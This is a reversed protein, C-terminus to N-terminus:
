LVGANRLAYELVQQQPDFPKIRDLGLYNIGSELYSQGAGKNLLAQAEAAAIGSAFLGAELICAEPILGVVESGLVDIGVEGALQRIAEWVALPSTQQYDTFNMSIQATGFDEVYWGIARLADFKGKIRRGNERYGSSRLQKALRRAIESSETNLSVNYAILIKRAGIVTAGTKLISERSTSNWKPGYDPQWRSSQMKHPLSEYNGKRIAPLHKRYSRKANYEYCYVPIHLKRGVREALVEAWQAAQKMTTNGVPVLPCVDTAGMRPHVGTQFRMDILEGAAQIVRFAAETVYPAYGAFTLVTRNASLNNDVHILKQGEINNIAHIIAQLKDDQKGHSVNVACVVVPTDKSM